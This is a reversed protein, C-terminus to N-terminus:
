FTQEMRNSYQQFENMAFRSSSMQPLDDDNIDHAAEDGEDNTDHAAEDGDGDDNTDHAAEDLSVDRQM